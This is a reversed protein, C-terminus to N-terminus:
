LFHLVRYTKAEMISGYDSFFSCELSSFTCGVRRRAEELEALQEEDIVPPRYEEEEEVKDPM